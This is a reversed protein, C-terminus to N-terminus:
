KSDEKMAERRERAYKKACRSCRPSPHHESHFEFATILYAQQVLRTHCYAQKSKDQYDIELIHYRPNFVM